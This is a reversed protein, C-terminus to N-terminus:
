SGTLGELDRIRQEHEDFVLDRQTIAEALRKFASDMKENLSDLRREVEGFRVNMRAEIRLELAELDDKTAGGRLERNMKAFRRDIHRKLQIITMRKRSGRIM